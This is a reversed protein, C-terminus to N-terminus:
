SPRPVPLLPQARRRWPNEEKPVLNFSYACPYGFCQSYRYYADGMCIAYIMEKVIETEAEEAEIVCLQRALALNNDCIKCDITKGKVWEPLEACDVCGPVGPDTATPPQGFDVAGQAHLSVSSLLLTTFILALAGLSTKM